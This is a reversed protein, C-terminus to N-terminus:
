EYEVLSVLGDDFFENLVKVHHDSIENMLKHMSQAYQVCDKNTIKEGPTVRNEYDM